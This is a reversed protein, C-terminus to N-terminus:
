IKAEYIDGKSHSIGQKMYNKIFFGNEEGFLPFKNKGCSIPSLFEADNM